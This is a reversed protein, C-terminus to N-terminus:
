RGVAHGASGNPVIRMELLDPDGGDVSWGDPVAFRYDYLVVTAPDSM